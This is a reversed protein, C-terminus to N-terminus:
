AIKPWKLDGVYVIFWINITTHISLSYCPRFDWHFTKSWKLKYWKYKDAAFEEIQLPRLQLVQPLRPTLKWPLFRLYMKTLDMIELSNARQYISHSLKHRTLLPKLVSRTMLCGAMVAFLSVMFLASRSGAFNQSAIHTLPSFIVISHYDHMLKTDTPSSYM